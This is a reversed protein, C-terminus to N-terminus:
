GKSAVFQTAKAHIMESLEEFDQIEEDSLNDIDGDLTFVGVRIVRSAFPKEQNKNINLSVGRLPWVLFVSETEQPSVRELNKIIDPCDELPFRLFGSFGGVANLIVVEVQGLPTNSVRCKSCRYDLCLYSKKLSATQSKGCSCTVTIKGDKLSWDPSKTDHTKDEWYISSVPTLLLIQQVERTVGRRLYNKWDWVPTIELM